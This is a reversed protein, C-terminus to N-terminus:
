YNCIILMVASGYEGGSPTKEKKQVQVWLFLPDYWVGVLSSPSVFILEKKSGRRTKHRLQHDSQLSSIDKCPQGKMDRGKAAGRKLSRELDDSECSSM